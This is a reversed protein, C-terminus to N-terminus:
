EVDSEIDSGLLSMTTEDNEDVVNESLVETFGSDNVLGDINLQKNNDEGNEDDEVNEHESQEEENLKVAQVEEQQGEQQEQTHTKFLDNVNFTKGITDNSPQKKNENIFMEIMDLLEKKKTQKLNGIIPIDLYQITERLKSVNMKKYHNEELYSIINQTKLEPTDDSSHYSGNSKNEIDNLDEGLTENNESLKNIHVEGLNIKMDTEEQTDELELELKKVNNDGVNKVGTTQGEDEGEDDEEDSGVDTSDIDSNDEDLDSTENDDDDSVEILDHKPAGPQTLITNTNTNAQNNNRLNDKSITQVGSTSINERYVINQQEQNKQAEEQVLTFLVNVKNEIIGYKRRLYFFVGIIAIALLILLGGTAIIFARTLNM